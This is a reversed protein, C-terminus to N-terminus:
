VAQGAAKGSLFETPLWAESCTALADLMAIACYKDLDAQSHATLAAVTEGCYSLLLPHKSFVSILKM